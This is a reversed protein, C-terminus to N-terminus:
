DVKMMLRVLNIIIFEILLCLLILLVTNGVLSLGDLYIKSDYLIMGLSVKPLVLVEATIGSKFAFGISSEITSLINKKNGNLYIYKIKKGLSYNYVNSMELLNKDASNITSVTQYYFTPLTMLFSIFPVIINSPMTVLCLIIFSVIPSVKVVLMLIEIIPKIIHKCSASIIGLIIGCILAFIFGIMIRLTTYCLMIYTDKIFLLSWIYKIVDIPSAFLFKADIYMYSIQWIVLWFLLALINTLIKKM